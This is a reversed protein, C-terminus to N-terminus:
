PFIIAIKSSICVNFIDMDYPVNQMALKLQSDFLDRVTKISEHKIDLLSSVISGSYFQSIIFGFLMLFFTTMRISLLNNQRTM